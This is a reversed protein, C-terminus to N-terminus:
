LRFEKAWDPDDEITEVSTVSGLSVKECATRLLNPTDAYGEKALKVFVDIATALGSADLEASWDYLIREYEPWRRRKRVLRFARSRELIESALEVPLHGNSGHSVTRDTQDSIEDRVPVPVPVPIVSTPSSETGFDVRSRRTIDTRTRPPLLLMSAEEPTRSGKRANCGRCSVVLNDDSEDGKPFPIVHDYTGGKASKRDRWDVEIGCYRCLDGDRARIRKALNRDANMAARRRDKERQALVDAKAPQFELYDHVQWGGDVKEWLGIEELESIHPLTNGDCFRLQGLGVMRPIFGDTLNRNCYALGTVWLALASDSLRAIKPNEAFSDDIRVWPM